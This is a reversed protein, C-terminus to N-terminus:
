PGQQQQGERSGLPPEREAGGRAEAAPDAQGPYRKRGAISPPPGPGVAGDHFYSPTVHRLKSIPAGDEIRNSKAYRHRVLQEDDGTGMRSSALGGEQPSRDIDDGDDPVIVIAPRSAALM